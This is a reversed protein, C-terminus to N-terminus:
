QSLSRRSGGPEKVPENLLRYSEHLHADVQALDPRTLIQVVDRHDEYGPLESPEQELLSPGSALVWGPRGSERDLLEQPNAAELPRVIAM